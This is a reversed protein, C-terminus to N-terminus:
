SASFTPQAEITLLPGNPGSIQNLNLNQLTLNGSVGAFNLAIPNLTYVTFRIGELFPAVASAIADLVANIPLWSPVGDFSLDFNGANAIVVTIQQAAGSPVAIVDVALSASGGIGPSISINPFGNPTHWTIGASGNMNLSGNVQNGAGPQLQFSVNSFSLSYDWSLNLPDDIGGSGNFSPIANAAVANLIATDLGIFAAGGPWATGESPLNVPQMGSYALLFEDGGATENTVVPAVLNVNAFSLNPIQIPGLVNSNLYALLQPMAGQVIATTFPDSPDSFEGATVQLVLVNQGQGNTQVEVVALCSLTGTTTVPQGGSPQVTVGLESCALTMTGATLLAAVTEVHEDSFHTSAISLAEEALAQSLPISITPATKFQITLTGAAPAPLEFNHSFLSPFANFFQAAAATLANQDAGAALDFVGPNTAM